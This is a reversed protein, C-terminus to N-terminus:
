DTGSEAGAGKLRLRVVGKFNEPDAPKGKRLIEIRGARALHVMQQKVAQLYKKWVDPPDKPKSRAQAITKAIDQPSLSGDTESLAALIAVAVPDLTEESM